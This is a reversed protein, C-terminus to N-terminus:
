DEESQPQDVSETRETHTDQGDALEPVASEPKGGRRRRTSATPAAEDPPEGEAWGGIVNLLTRPMRARRHDSVRYATVIEVPM